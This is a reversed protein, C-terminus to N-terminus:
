QEEPEGDNNEHNNEDVAAESRVKELTVLKDGPKINIIKVGQTARGQARIASSDQKIIKGQESSLIIEEKERLIVLGIAKGLRENIRINILGKGGRAQIRYLSLESKKGFGNETATLIYKDSEKIIDAGVVVDGEDLRIGIVGRGTRGIERVDWEHFRISKGMSTGLIIEDDGETIQAEFLLDDERVDAAIIGNIRPRSFASLSTKKVYGERTFLMIYKYPSFEKVNLVSCIREEDSIGILRSIPKGRAGTDAEPIEYVKKWFM